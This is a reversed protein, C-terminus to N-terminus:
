RHGHGMSHGGGFGGGGRSGGFSVAHGSFGGGGRFGGAHNPFSVSRAGGGFSHFGGSRGAFPASRGGYGVYGRGGYYGHGGLYGRGGYYGYGRSYAGFGRGGYCYPYGFGCYGGFPYSGFGFSLSPWYYPWGYGYNYGPSAYDYSPSVYSSVPDSYAYNPYAPQAGYDYAPAYPAVAGPNGPPAAPNAAVQGPQMGQARVEAGRQLMVTLIEPAIGRDKLAIIETANPNYATPSNKIYTKVVEVDVKADVLKVIDAVGPSYRPAPVTQPANADPQAGLPVANIARSTLPVCVVMVGAAVWARIRSIKVVIRQKTTNM